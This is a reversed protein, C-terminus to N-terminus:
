ITHCTVTRPATLMTHPTFTRKKRVNLTCCFSISLFAQTAGVGLNGMCIVGRKVLKIWVIATRINVQSTSAFENQTHRDNDAGFPSPLVSPDRYYTPEVAQAQGLLRQGAIAIQDYQGM